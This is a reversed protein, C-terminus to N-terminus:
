RRPYPKRGYTVHKEALRLTTAPDSAPDFAEKLESATLGLGETSLHVLKARRDVERLALDIARTKNAAGTAAMVRKLLEDDIHLTMKM